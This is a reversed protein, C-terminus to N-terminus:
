DLVIQSKEGTRLLSYNGVVHGRENKCEIKAIMYKKIASSFDSFLPCSIYFDVDKRMSRRALLMFNGEKKDWSNWHQKKTTQNGYYDFCDQMFLSYHDPSVGLMSWCLDSIRIPDFLTQYEASFNMGYITRPIDLQYNKESEYVAFAALVKEREPGYFVTIM